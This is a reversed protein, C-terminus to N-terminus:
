GIKLDVVEVKDSFIAVGSSMSEDDLICGMALIMLYKTKTNSELAIRGGRLPSDERMGIYSPGM